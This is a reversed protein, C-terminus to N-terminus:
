RQSNAAISINSFAHVIPRVTGGYQDGFWSSLVMPCGM